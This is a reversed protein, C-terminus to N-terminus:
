NKLEQVAPSFVLIRFQITALMGRIQDGKFEEHCCNQNAVTTEFM